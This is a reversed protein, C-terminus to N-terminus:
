ALWYIIHAALIGVLFGGFAQKPTHGLLEHLRRTKFKGFYKFEDAVKNLVQAQKGVARRLGIADSIVIASFIVCIIFLNSGGELLYVSTAMSIVTATHSSPMGGTRFFIMWDWVDTGLYHFVMKMLSALVYAFIVSLIIQNTFIAVLWGFM